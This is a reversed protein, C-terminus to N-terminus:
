FRSQYTQIKKFVNTLFNFHLFKLNLVVVKLYKFLQFHVKESIM